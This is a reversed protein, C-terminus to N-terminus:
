QGTIASTIEKMVTLRFFDICFSKAAGTVGQGVKEDRYYIWSGRKHLVGSDLGLTVLERHSDIQGFNVRFRIEHETPPVGSFLKTVHARTDKGDRTLCVGVSRAARIATSFEGTMEGVRRNNTVLVAPGDQRIERTLQSLDMRSSFTAPIGSATDVVMLVCHPASRRLLAIPYDVSPALILKDLDVGCCVATLPDFNNGSDMWLVPGYQQANAVAHYALCSKGTGPEGYLESIRCYPWGGGLALDLGLAGTSVAKWPNRATQPKDLAALVDEPALQGRWQGTTM